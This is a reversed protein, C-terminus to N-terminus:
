RDEFPLHPESTNTAFKFPPSLYQQCLVIYEGLLDVGCVECDKLDHFWRIIRGDACGFDLIRRAAQFSFGSAEAVRRITGAHAKGTSIFRAESFRVMFREKPPIPLSPGDGATTVPRAVDDRRIIYTEVEPRYPRVKASIYPNFWVAPSTAIYEQIVGALIAKARLRL